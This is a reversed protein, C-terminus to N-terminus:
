SEMRGTCLIGIFDRALSSLDWNGPSGQHNLCYLIQRCHLLGPNSGQTPFVGQLLSPIAVWELIRIQLIGHISSGPPSCDMPGCLTLCSQTVLVKVNQPSGPPETPLSDAQLAPSGPSTPEIRPDPLDLFGVRTNKGSSNWPSLLRTHYLGYPQLTPCSQLSQARLM